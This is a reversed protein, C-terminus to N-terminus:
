KSYADPKNSYASRLRLIEERMLNFCYETKRSNNLPLSAVDPDTLFDKVRESCEAKDKELMEEEFNEESAQFSM